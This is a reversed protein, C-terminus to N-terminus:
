QLLLWFLLLQLALLPRLQELQGSAVRLVVRASQLLQVRRWVSLRRDPELLGQAWLQRLQFAQERLQRGQQSAELPSEL